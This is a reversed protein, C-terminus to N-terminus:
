QEFYLPLMPRVRLNQERKNFPRNLCDSDAPADNIIELHQFNSDKYEANNPALVTWTNHDVELDPPEYIPMEAMLRDIFTPNKERHEKDVLSTIKMVHYTRKNGLLQFGLKRYYETLARMEDNLSLPGKTQINKNIPATPSLEVIAAQWFETDDAEIPAHPSFCRVYSIKPRYNNLRKNHDAIIENLATDSLAPTLVIGPKKLHKKALRWRDLSIAHLIQSVSPAGDCPINCAKLRTVATTHQDTIAKVVWNPKTNKQGTDLVPKAESRTLGREAEIQDVIEKISSGGYKQTLTTILRREEETIPQKRYLGLM